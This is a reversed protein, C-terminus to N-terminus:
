KISERKAGEETSARALLVAALGVVGSVAEMDEGAAGGTTPVEDVAAAAVM